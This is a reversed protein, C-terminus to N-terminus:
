RGGAFPDTGKTRRSSRELLLIILVVFILALPFHVVMPHLRGLFRWLVATEPPGSAATALITVSDIAATTIMTTMMIM